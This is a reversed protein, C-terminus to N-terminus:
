YRAKLRLFPLELFHYSLMSLLFPVLISIPFRRLIGWSPTQTVIFVQQWLYLSYSIRGMYRLWKQEFFVLSWESYGLVLQALLSCILIMQVSILFPRGYGREGALSVAFLLLWLVAAPIKRWIIRLQQINSHNPALAVALCGGILISDFRFYPRMYYIGSEYSFLGFYIALGRWIVFGCTVALITPLVKKLPLWLFCIPWCLYFQEELSLSWLHALSESRGFINRAYFLAAALEYKPIDTILRFKMLVIIVAFFLLLAPGLRLGRRIYFKKLNVTGTETRERYLLSTILYGSLVFFLFVGLGAMVQGVVFMAPLDVYQLAHGVVVLLVALGRFGDLQPFHSFRYEGAGALGPSDSQFGGSNQLSAVGNSTIPPPDVSSKM